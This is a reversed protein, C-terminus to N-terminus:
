FSYETLIMYTSQFVATYLILLVQKHQTHQKYIKGTKTTYSRPLQTTDETGRQWQSSSAGGASGQPGPGGRSWEGALLFSYFVKRLLFRFLLRILLWREIIIARTMGVEKIIDGVHLLGQQDIMGGHLIRAIMLEGGEVKFTM